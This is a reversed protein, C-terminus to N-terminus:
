GQLPHFSVESFGQRPHTFEEDTFLLCRAPGPIGLAPNIPLGRAMGARSFLCTIGPGPIGPEGPAPPEGPVDTQTPREGRSM